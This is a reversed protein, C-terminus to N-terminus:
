LGSEATRVLIRRCEECRLVEDAAAAKIRSMDVNNLELQCGGCRRQRLAAAGLGGSQARIKEYLAVLDEGVGAVTDARPGGVRAAEADLEALAADRAGTLDELQAALSAREAELRGVESEMTEAREMIEIEVDELESQRRALSAMEHQIAQLDKATGVGSDLRSQDRAARDRVLQVDAEAKAVERQVDGLATQARVLDSDLATARGQLDALQAHQPLHTRAHAIQDLRTDIAQLDLLRWQRSPDAKLAYRRNPRAPARAGRRRGHLGV